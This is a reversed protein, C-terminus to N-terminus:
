NYDNATEWLAGDYVNSLTRLMSWNKREKKKKKKANMWLYHCFEEKENLLPELFINVYAIKDYPRM